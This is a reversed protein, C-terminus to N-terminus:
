FDKLLIFWTSIWYFDTSSLGHFGASKWHPKPHINIQPNLKGPNVGGDNQITKLMEKSIQDTSDGVEKELFPSSNCFLNLMDPKLKNTKKEWSFCSQLVSILSNKASSYLHQYIEGMSFDWFGILGAANKKTPLFASKSSRTEIEAARKNFPKSSSILNSSALSKKPRGSSKSSKKPYIKSRLNWIPIYIMSFNLKQINIEWPKHYFFHEVRSKRCGNTPLINPNVVWRGLGSLSVLCFPHNYHAEVFRDHQPCNEGVQQTDVEQQIYKFHQVFFLCKSLLLGWAMSINWWAM